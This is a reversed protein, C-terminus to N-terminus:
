GLQLTHRIDVHSKPSAEVGGDDIWSLFYLGDRVEVIEVHERLEARPADTIRLHGDFTNTFSWGNDYTYSVSKGDFVAIPDLDNM